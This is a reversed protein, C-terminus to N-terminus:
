PQWEPRFYAPRTDIPGKLPRSAASGAVIARGLDLVEAVLAGSPVLGPKFCIIGTPMYEAVAAIIPGVVNVDVDPRSVLRKAVMENKQM